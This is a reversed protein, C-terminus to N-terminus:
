HYPSWRSRCEKGVRREESRRTSGALCTLAHAQKPPLKLQTLKATVSTPVQLLLVERTGAQGRVGAPIVAELVQGWPCLYYDSMWETLALMNPSALPKDDIM